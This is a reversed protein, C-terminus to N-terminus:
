DIYTSSLLFFFFFWQKGIVSKRWVWFTYLPLIVQYQELFKPRNRVLRNTERDIISIINRITLKEVASHIHCMASYGACITNRHELILVQLCTLCSLKSILYSFVVVVISIICVSPHDGLREGNLCLPLYWRKSKAKNSFYGLCSEPAHVVSFLLSWAWCVFCLRVDEDVVVCVNTM